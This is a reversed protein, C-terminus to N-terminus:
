HDSTACVAKCIILIGMNQARQNLDHIPVGEARIEACVSTRAKAQSRPVAKLDPRAWSAPALTYVLGLFHVRLVFKWRRERGGGGVKKLWELPATLTTAGITTLKASIGSM